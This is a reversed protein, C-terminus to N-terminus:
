LFVVKEAIKKKSKGRTDKGKYRIPTTKISEPETINAPTTWSSTQSQRFSFTKKNNNRKQRDKKRM